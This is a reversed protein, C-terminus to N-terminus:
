NNTTELEVNLGIFNRALRVSERTRRGVPSSYPEIDRRVVPSDDSESLPPMRM